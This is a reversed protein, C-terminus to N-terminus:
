KAGIDITGSACNVVIKVEERDKYHADLFKNDIFVDGGELIKINQHGINAVKGKEENIAFDYSKDEDFYITGTVDGYGANIELKKGLKLDYFDVNQQSYIETNDVECDKMLVDGYRGIIYLKGSITLNQVTTDGADNQVKVSNIDSNKVTADGYATWLKLHNSKLNEVNIFGSSTYIDVDDYEKKPLYLLVNAKKNYRRMNGGSIEEKLPNISIFTFDYEHIRERIKLVTNENSLKFREKNYGRIEVYASKEDTRRIELDSMRLDIDVSTIKDFKESYDELPESFYEEWTQGAVLKKSTDPFKDINAAEVYDLGDFGAGIVIFAVGVSFFILAVILMKKTKKM